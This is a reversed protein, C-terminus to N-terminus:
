SPHLEIDRVRGKRLMSHPSGNISKHAGNVVRVDLIRSIHIGLESLLFSRSRSVDLVVSDTVSVFLV